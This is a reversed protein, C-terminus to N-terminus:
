GLDRWHLHHVRALNWPEKANPIYPALPSM